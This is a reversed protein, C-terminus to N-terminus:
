HPWGRGRDPFPRLAVPGPRELDGVEERGRGAPRALPRADLVADSGEGDDLLRVGTSMRKAPLLEPLLSSSIAHIRAFYEESRWPQRGPRRKRPRPPGRATIM